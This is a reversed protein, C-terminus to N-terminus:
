GLFLFDSLAVQLGQSRIEVGIPEHQNSSAELFGIEGDGSLAWDDQLALIVQNLQETSANVDSIQMYTWYGHQTKEGVPEMDYYGFVQNLLDRPVAEGTPLGVCLGGTLEHTM